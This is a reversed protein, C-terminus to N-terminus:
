VRKKSKTSAAIDDGDLSRKPAQKQSEEIKTLGGDSQNEQTVPGEGESLRWNEQVEPEEIAEQQGETEHVAEVRSARQFEPQPDEQVLREQKNGKKKESCTACMRVGLTPDLDATEGCGDCRISEFEDDDEDDESDSSWDNNEACELGYKETGWPKVVDFVYWDGPGWSNMGCESCPKRHNGSVERVTFNGPLRMRLADVRKRETCNYCIGKKEEAEEPDLDAECEVCELLAGEDEQDSPEVTPNM